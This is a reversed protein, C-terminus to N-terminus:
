SHVFKDQDKQDREWRSQNATVCAMLAFYSPYQDRMGEPNKQCLDEMDPSSLLRLSRNNKMADVLRAYVKDDDMRPLELSTLIKNNELAFALGEIVHDLFRGNLNVHLLNPHNALATMLPMTQKLFLTKSLDLRDLSELSVLNALEGLFQNCNRLSLSTLKNKGTLAGRLMNCDEQKLHANSLDLHRITAQNKLYEAYYHLVTGVKETRLDLALERLEPQKMLAQATGRHQEVGDVYNKLLHLRSLQCAALIKWLLQETYKTREFYLNKLMPLPPCDSIGFFSHIKMSCQALRLSELEPMRKLVDFLLSIANDEFHHGCLTLQDVSCHDPIAHLLTKLAISLDSNGQSRPSVDVKTVREQEFIAKLLEVEDHFMCECVLQALQSEDPVAQPDNFFHDILASFALSRQHASSRLLGALDRRWNGPRGTDPNSSLLHTLETVYHPNARVPRM